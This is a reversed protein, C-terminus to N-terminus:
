KDGRFILMRREPDDRLSASWTHRLGCNQFKLTLSDNLGDPVPPTPFLSLSRFRSKPLSRPREPAPIPAPIPMMPPGGPITTPPATPAATPMTVFGLATLRPWGAQLYGLRM